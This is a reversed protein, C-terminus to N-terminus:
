EIILGCLAWAGGFAKLIGFASDGNGPKMPWEGTDPEGPHIDSGDGEVVMYGLVCCVFAGWCSRYGTNCGSIGWRVFMIGM